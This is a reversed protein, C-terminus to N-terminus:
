APGPRRREKRSHLFEEECGGGRKSKEVEPGGRPQDWNLRSDRARVSLKQGGVGLKVGRARNVKEKVQSKPKLFSKLTDHIRKHGM